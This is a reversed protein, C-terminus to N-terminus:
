SDWTEDITILTRDGSLFVLKNTTYESLFPFISNAPLTGRGANPLAGASWNDGSNTSKMMVTNIQTATTGTGAQYFSIVFYLNGNSAEVLNSVLLNNESMDDHNMKITGGDSTNGTEIFNDNFAHVMVYNTASLAIMNSTTTPNVASNQGSDSWDVGANTTAWINGNVDIALGNSSDFMDIVPVDVTPGTTVVAWSTGNNISRVIGKTATGVDLGMVAVSTTPASISIGATANSVISSTFTWNDGSDTTVNMNNGNDNLCMANTHDTDVVTSQGDMNTNDISAVVWTTGGDTTRTTATENPCSWVTASHGLVGYRMKQQTNYFIPNYRVESTANNAESAFYPDDAVKPFTGEGTVM